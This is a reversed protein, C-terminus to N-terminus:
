AWSLLSQLNWGLYLWVAVNAPRFPFTFIGRTLPSTAPTLSERDLLALERDLEDPSVPTAPSPPATKQVAYSSGLPVLPANFARFAALQTAPSNGGTKLRPRLQRPRWTTLAQWTRKMLNHQNRGNRKSPCWGWQSMPRARRSHYQPRPNSLSSPSAANRVADPWAPTSHRSGCAHSAFHAAFPFGNVRPTRYATLCAELTASRKTNQM